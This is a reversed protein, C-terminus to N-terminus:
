GSCASILLRFQRTTTDEIPFITCDEDEIALQAEDPSSATDAEDDESEAVANALRALNSMDLSVVGLKRELIREMYAMREILEATNAVEGDTQTPDKFRCVRQFRVCRTCPVGGDCKEKL